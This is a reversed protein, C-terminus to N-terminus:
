FIWTLAATSMLALTSWGVVMHTKALSARQQGADASRATVIGLGMQTAMGLSAGIVAIKHITIRDLGQSEKEFPEPAFVSFVATTIFLGTTTYAGM